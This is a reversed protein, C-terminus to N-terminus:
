IELAIKSKVKKDREEISMRRTDDERREDRKLFAVYDWSHTDDTNEIYDGVETTTFGEIEPQHNITSSIDNKYKELLKVLKRKNKEIQLEIANDLGLDKDNIKPKFFDSYGACISRNCRSFPIINILREQENELVMIQEIIYNSDNMESVVEIFKHKLRKIKRM